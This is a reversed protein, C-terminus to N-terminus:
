KSPETGFTLMAAAATQKTSPRLRFTRRISKSDDISYCMYRERVHKQIGLEQADVQFTCVFSQHDSSLRSNVRIWYEANPEAGRRLIIIIIRAM